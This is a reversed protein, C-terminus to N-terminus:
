MEKRANKPLEQHFSLQQIASPLSLLIIQKIILIEVQTTKSGGIKNQLLADFDVSLWCKQDRFFQKGDWVDKMSFWTM